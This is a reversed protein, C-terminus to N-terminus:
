TNNIQMLNSNYLVFGSVTDDTADKMKYTEYATKTMEM